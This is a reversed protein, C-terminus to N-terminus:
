VDREERKKRKERILETLKKCLWEAEKRVEEILETTDIGYKDRLQELDAIM